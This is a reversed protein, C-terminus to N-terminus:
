WLTRTDLWTVRGTRRKVEEYMHATGGPGDGGDGNWLCIFRVKDIGWALATYLLWLNCREFPNAHETQGIKPLAGLENPMIRPADKLSERVAYFRNCWANGDTAPLVSRQIFEPEELPLMMHLRMGRTQCAELFLLDGGSAGQTLALDDPGAGLTNLIEDIKKSAVAEMAAPFRPTARDPTDIMHGSFLFVTRPEFPPTSRAIERDLIDLAADTEDPRFALDHLLQVTQRTSDLAFWDRNAAAVTAAYEKRVTDLPNVLLCLEAYSARAWYDKQNRQQSSLSAWRVGGILNDIVTSDTDGGLHKRLLRLTLANVGSYHHSPDAIFAKNYPEIAEALAADEYVAAERMADPTTSDPRWRSIWNEKEVRGLLSWVEPDSAYDTTLRRVWERAEEYRGLRGLCVAKKERAPKHTPDLGLVSEYQELAFDFHKLKLLADGAARKAEIRLAITPTEDALVLIDGARIKQRAVEMRSAWEDYTASFENREALLLTKWEPERLHPLLGYVPSVKRGQWAGITAKAMATLAARDAELTADDPAGNKVSYHLKRDTYIDFPQ